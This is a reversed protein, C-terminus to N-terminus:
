VNESFGLHFGDRFFKKKGSWFCHEVSVFTVHDVIHNKSNEFVYRRHEIIEIKLDYCSILTLSSCFDFFYTEHVTETAVNLKQLKSKKGMSVILKTFTFAFSWSASNVSFCLYRRINKVKFRHWHTFTIKKTRRNHNQQAWCKAWFVEGCKGLKGLSFFFFFMLSWASKLCWM